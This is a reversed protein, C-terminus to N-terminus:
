SYCLFLRIVLLIKSEKVVKKQKEPPREEKCIKISKKEPGDLFNTPRRELNRDKKRGGFFQQPSKKRPMKKKRDKNRPPYKRPDEKKRDKKQLRDM